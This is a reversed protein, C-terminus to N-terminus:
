MRMLLQHDGDNDQYDDDDDDNLQVLHSWCEAGTSLLLYAASVLNSWSMTMMITTMMMDDYNDDDDAQAGDDDDEVDGNDNAHLLM